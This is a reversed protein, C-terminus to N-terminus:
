RVVGRFRDPLGTAAQAQLSPPTRSSQPPDSPSDPSLGSSSISPRDPFLSANATQPAPKSSLDILFHGGQMSAAPASGNSASEKGRKAEPSPASWVAGVEVPTSPKSAQLLLNGEQRRKKNVYATIVQAALKASGSGWDGHEQLVVVAIEPIEDRRWASSGPM